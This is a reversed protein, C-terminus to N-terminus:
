VCMKGRMGGIILAFRPVPRRRRKRLRVSGDAQDGIQVKDCARASATAIACLRCTRTISM